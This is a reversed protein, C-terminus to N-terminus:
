KPRVMDFMLEPRVEVYATPGGARLIPHAAATDYIGDKLLSRDIHVMVVEGLVLWTKVSVGAASKLQVVDAVKCEM